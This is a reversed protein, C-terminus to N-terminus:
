SSGYLSKEKEDLEVALSAIETFHDYPIVVIGTGDAAMVDGACVVIGGLAIRGNAELV